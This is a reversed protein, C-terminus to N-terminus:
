QFNGRKRKKGSIPIASHVCVVFVNRKGCRGGYRWRPSANTCRRSFGRFAVFDRTRVETGCANSEPPSVADTETRETARLQNLRKRRRNRSRMMTTTHKIETKTHKLNSKCNIRADFDYGFATVITRSHIADLIRM